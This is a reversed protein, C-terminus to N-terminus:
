FLLFEFFFCLFVFCVCVCLCVLCEFVGFIVMFLRFFVLFCWFKIELVEGRGFFVGRICVLDCWFLFENLCFFFDRFSFSLKFLSLLLLCFLEVCSRVVDFGNGVRGGCVCLLCWWWFGGFVFFCCCMISWYMKNFVLIRNWLMNMLMVRDIVVFGDKVMKRRVMEKWWIYVREVRVFLFGLM